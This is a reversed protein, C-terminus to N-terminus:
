LNIQPSASLFPILSLEERVNHKLFILPDTPNALSIVLGCLQWICNIFRVVHIQECLPHPGGKHCPNLWRWKTRPSELFLMTSM